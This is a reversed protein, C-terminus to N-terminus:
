RGLFRYDKNRAAAGPGAFAKGIKKPIMYVEHGLLGGFYKTNKWAIKTCEKYSRDKNAETFFFFFFLGTVLGINIGKRFVIYHSPTGYKKAINKAITICNRWPITKFAKKSFTNTTTSLFSLSIILSLLLKKM